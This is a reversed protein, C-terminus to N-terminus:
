HLKFYKSCHQIFLCYYHLEGRTRCASHVLSFLQCFLEFRQVWNLGYTGERYVKSIKVVRCRVIHWADRLLMAIVNHRCVCLLTGANWVNYDKRISNLDKGPGAEQEGKMIDFVLSQTQDPYGFVSFLTSFEVHLPNNWNSSIRPTQIALSVSDRKNIDGDQILPFVCQIEQSNNTYDIWTKGKFFYRRKRFGDLRSLTWM